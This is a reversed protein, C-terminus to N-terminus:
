RSAHEGWAETMAIRQALTPTRAYLLYAWWACAWSYVGSVGGRSSSPADCRECSAQKADLLPLVLEVSTRLQLEDSEPTESAVRPRAMRRKAHQEM